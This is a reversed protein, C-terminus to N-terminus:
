IKVYAQLACATPIGHCYLPSLHFRLAPCRCGDHRRDCCRGNEMWGRRMADGTRAGSCVHRGEKELLIHRPRISHRRRRSLTLCLLATYIPEM